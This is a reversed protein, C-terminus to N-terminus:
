TRLYKRGGKMVKQLCQVLSCQQIDRWFHMWKSVFFRLGSPCSLAWAGPLLPLDQPGVGWRVARKTLPPYFLDSLYVREWTYSAPTTPTSLVFRNTLFHSWLSWFIKWPRTPWLLCLSCALCVEAKARSQFSQGWIDMLNVGPGWESTEKETLGARVVWWGKVDVKGGKNYRRLM